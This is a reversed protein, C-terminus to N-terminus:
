DAHLELLDAMLGGARAYAEALAVVRAGDGRGACWVGYDKLLRRCLDTIARDAVTRALDVADRRVFADSWDADALTRLADGADKLSAPSEYSLCRSAEEEDTCYVVTRGYNDGWGLLRSIPIAKKWARKM